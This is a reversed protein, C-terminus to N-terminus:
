FWPHWTPEMRCLNKPEQAAAILEVIYPLLPVTLLPSPRGAPQQGPPTPDESPQVPCTRQIRELVMSTNRLVLSQLTENKMSFAQKSSRRAAWAVIDDRFFLALFHQANSGRAALAQAANAMVTSFVGEVGFATFFATLNRTLRFPVPEVKELYGRDNYVPLVDTQYLRGTDKAFLIKTPSRGNILLMHCMLASLATQACLQKKFAWLHTASPLSKYAFQSFVNENVIHACVDAFTQQRLPLSSADTLVQGRPDACRQKFAVIPMDPERGYRACNVEYAEHLTCAAPAEEMLRVQVWVPVMVPTHWALARQRSQPHADLLRNSLRLLQIIREDTTGQANNQGTQVLMHRARGDSGLLVLRRYSTCHRRVVAVAAGFCELQVIGEPAVEQGGLYQGPMEVEVLSLEELPRAEEALRLSPPLKDELDAQLRARWSKLQETLEGLTAPFAPGEPNMDRVFAERIDRQVANSSGGAASGPGAGGATGGRGGQQARAAAAQEPSFCAKCVGALEKKLPQPVEAANAFPVKYCRHLLANVVALLREEPKPVFKSGIEQLMGELTLTLASCRARLVDMVEKGAEFARMEAARSPDLRAAPGELHAAAEGEAGGGGGAAAEAARREAEQRQRQLEQAAKQAAERLSLMHVRLWYYVAQPHAASVQQLLLKVHPAEPRQLSALLQPVWAFWVWPPLEAHQKDLHSGVVGGANEFSLLYLLRPLLARGSSSGLRVAQLYCHVAYELFHYQPLVPKPPQPGGGGAGMQVAVANAQAAQAASAEYLRDNFSGWNLWADSCGRWLSLSTSFNSAAADDEGLAQQMLAKLRFLEAQHTSQFYDLNTTSIMNLGVCLDAPGLDLYAEAQEKIKIFAEQVEMANYGYLTNLMQLCTDPLGHKLAVSGLRNVSWAKDRYGLQHLAPTLDRMAGFSNIVINYIQNRWVLVDQWHVLSEWENPTRLRWTAMIEKLDTFAHEPRGNAQALDVLIRASEKLEVLQQFTQLLGVHATNSPLEPLAWWRQLASLLAKNTQTDAEQVHGEQLALYARTMLLGPSDEVSGGKAAASNLQERLQTWDSLRWLCDVVVELQETTKGYELLLDWHNLHRCCDLWQEVWLAQEGRNPQEPTSRMQPPAHFTRTAEGLVESAREWMGTQILPLGTRTWDTAARRRWLGALLDDERVLRYLEALSDFCRSEDPFICVHSELLPIAIHWANFNKGLFKILEPPIKPQPQCLSIGELLAQLVNPRATMQHRHYERALLTIIPKALSVQQEKALSAWVIPFVLVWLHYAVQPDAGAYERLSSVLERVRLKGMSDLWEVHGRVVELVEPSASPFRAALEVGGAAGGAAAGPESGAGEGGAAAPAAAAALGGSHPGALQQGPQGVSTLALPEEKVVVAGEAKVGAAAGLPEAKIELKIGDPPQPSGEAPPGGGEPPPPVKPPQPVFVNQQIPLLPPVQSSNPALMILDDERLAALLLDLATKLWFSGSMAEWDQNVIVFSLRDYLNAAVHNDYLEFFRRRINHDAARLGMMFRRELHTFYEEARRCEGIYRERETDLARDLDQQEPPPSSLRLVLSLLTSDWARRLASGGGAGGGAAGGAQGAAGQQQQQQQAAPPSHHDFLNLKELAALRQVMLIAEKPSLIGTQGPYPNVLWRELVKLMELFLAPEMHRTNQGAMLGIMSSLVAKRQEHNHLVRPALLRVCSSVVWYLSGYEPEESQSSSSPTRRAGPHNPGMNALERAAQQLVKCLSPVCQFIFNAPAVGELSELLALCGSLAQLLRPDGGISSGGGAPQQPQQQQGPQQQQQQAATAAAAALYKMIVEECRRQVGALLASPAPAGPPAGPIPLEAVGQQAAQQAAALKGQLLRMMEGVETATRRHRSQLCPEVLAGLPGANLALLHLPQAEVLARCVQLGLTLHPPDPPASPASSSSGAAAAAAAKAQKAPDIPASLLRELFSLKVVTAPWLRLAQLLVQMGYGQQLSAEDEKVSEPTILVFRALFNTLTEEMHPTPRFEDDAGGGGGAGSGGGAAGPSSVPGAAAGGASGGRFSSYSVSRSMAGGPQQQQPAPGAAATGAADTMQADGAAAAAAAAHATAADAVRPSKLPPQSASATAAVAEPVGGDERQRKVGLSLQPVLPAGGSAAGVGAAGGGSGAGAAAAALDQRKREWGVVLKALDLALRRYEYTAGQLGLKSLTHVMQGVFQSRSSYFLDAHRLVLQWIHVVSALSQAEESLVKKTYRVWLSIKNEPSRQVKENLTPVLVDLAEKILPKKTDPQCAKLLAVFVQLMIKEPAQFNKLFYAVNVFAYSKTVSDEKKLYNWGFKILEKKHKDLLSPSYKFLQTCLHLLEIRLSESQGGSKAETPDLLEVVVAEALAEGIVERQGAELAQVLMPTVLVQLVRELQEGPLRGGRFVEVYAALLSRKQAPTYQQAVVTRCFDEIFGYDVSSRHLHLSIVDFLPMVEQRHERVYALVCKALRKSELLQERSVSTVAFWVQAAQQSQQQQQQSSAAGGTPAQQPAPGLAAAEEAVRAARHPSHWRQMIAAMIKPQAPLWAPLLKTLVRVLHVAHFAAQPHASPPPPATGEPLQAAPHPPDYRLLLAALQDTSAAVADLLPRGMPSRILDLLRSFYSPQDLRAPDLFYAAAEAPYKTLFRTLPARYPSTMVHPVPVPLNLASLKEELEITLIVLGPKTPGAEAGAAAAGGAAQQQQQQGAAAAPAPASHTELFKVATKPLLHFLDLVLSAVLAEEGSKWLVQGTLQKEPNLWNKLHELLKDGLTLNFWDSLLELLRALGQLLAPHLKNYTALNQLLPRLTTQLLEKPLRQHSIIFQLGARAAGHIDETSSTLNRFFMGIVSERLQKLDARDRFEEWGWFASLLQMCAVRLRQLADLTVNRPGPGGRGGAYTGVVGGPGVGEDKQALKQALGAEDKEAIMLAEHALPLLQDSLPLPPPQQRAVTALAQVQSVTVEVNRIPMLRRSHLPPNMAQLVPALYSSPSRGMAGALGKLAAEAAVRVWRPLGPGVMSGVLVEAVSDVVATPCVVTPAAAPAPAPPSSSTAAATAPAAPTPAGATTAPAAAGQAATAAAAADDTQAPAAPAASPEGSAAAAPAQDGQQQQQQQVVEGEKPQPEKAGTNNSRSSSGKDCGHLVKYMMEGLAAEVEEREARCYEPLWRVVNLLARACPVAWGCLYAAPLRGVLLRLAAAGALRGQWCDEHCCHLVRQMVDDIIAPLGHSAARSSEADAAPATGSTGAAAAAGPSTGAAGSTCAPATPAALSGQEQLQAAAPAAAAAGASQAAHQSRAGHLLLATDVFAALCDLAPRSKVAAKDCLVETLADLYLQCDLERLGRPLLSAGSPGGPQGAGAGPAGAAGGGSVGPSAAAAAAGSPAGSSGPAAIGGPTAGAQNGGGGDPMTRAMVPAPPPPQTGSIFLMAFHRSVHLAFPKADAALAEDAPAGMVAALLQVLIQREAVVQTKTKVGSDLQRKPMAVAVQPPPLEGLVLKLLVEVGADVVQPDSQPAVSGGEAAGEGAATAVVGPGAGGVSARQRAAGQQVGAAAAAAAAAAARAAEVAEADAEVERVRLNLMSALCVHLFRLAQRRYYGPDGGPPVVVGGGAAGAAAGFGEAGAAIGARALAVCRDVPVLFSTSPQFTLILRLGHEPNDRYELPTPEKLWRRNLGGMKGLLALAKTALPNNFKLLAWLGHMLDAIVEQMAPELFEPNLNDVWVELTKVAALSLEEPGHRIAMTLPRMLRPLLQLVGTLQAPLTLCIELLVGRLEPPHPGGLMALVLSLCPEVHPSLANYMVKWKSSASAVAKFFSRLLQMYGAAERESVAARLAKDMMRTLHPLLVPEMDHYNSVFAFLLKFLKLALAGEESTVSSLLPLQHNVMFELLVALVVRCAPNATQGPLQAGLGASGTGSLLHMVVHVAEKDELLASFLDPLRGSVVEVLDRPELQLFVDAFTEYSDKVATLPASGG